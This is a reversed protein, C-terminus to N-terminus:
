ARCHATTPPPTWATCPPAAPTPWSPALQLGLMRFAGFGMEAPSSSASALVLLAIAAIARPTM